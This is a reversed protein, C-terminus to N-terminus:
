YKWIERTIPFESFCYEYINEFYKRCQNYEDIPFKIEPSVNVKKNSDMLDFDINLFKSLAELNEKQFLNEYFGFFVNEESFTKKISKVTLDYSTRAVFQPGTYLREFELAIQQYNIQMGIELKKRIEHRFASWNRKAPDRMLFVVKVLFGVSELRDRITKLQEATLISYSPTIDGTIQITESILGRFYIEYVKENTQMLKRLATEATENKKTSAIFSSMLPSYIADWIHYEKLFGMNVNKSQNLQKFLWTTGAKQAGVGLIFIPMNSESM